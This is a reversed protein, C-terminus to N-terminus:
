EPETKLFREEVLDAVCKYESCNEDDSDNFHVVEETVEVPIGLKEMVFYRSQFSMGATWDFGLENAIYGISCFTRKDPIEEGTDQDWYKRCWSGQTFKTPDAKRLMTVLKKVGRKQKANLKYYMYM